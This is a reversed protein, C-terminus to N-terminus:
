QCVKFDGTALWKGLKGYLGVGVARQDMQQVNGHVRAVTINKEELKEKPIYCDLVEVLKGGQPLIDYCANQSEKSAIADYIIEIPKPSIIKVWTSFSPSTLTNRDLIHTAGLSKLYGENRMSATTIIPSFGSLRALQMAVVSM